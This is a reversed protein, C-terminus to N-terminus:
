SQSKKFKQVQVDQEQNKQQNQIYEEDEQKIQELILEEEQILDSSDSQLQEQIQQQNLDVNNENQDLFINENLFENKEVEIEDDEKNTKSYDVYKRKVFQVYNIMNQDFDPTIEAFSDFENEEEQFTLCKGQYKKDYQFLMKLNDQDHQQIIQKEDIVNSSLDEKLFQRQLIKEEMTGTCFLRYIYVNKTQGDRWIRGMVQLDNSPNWDVEMLIMRNAATLNLGTGGAKACLLFINYNSNQDQFQDILKQRQTSQVSGDLRLIKFHESEHQNILQQILDLTQTYYSVIIIKEKQNKLKQQDKIQYLIDKLFQTKVSNAWDNLQFDHPFYQKFEFSNKNEQDTYLIQPHNLIKRISTLLTLVATQNENFDYNQQVKSYLMKQLETMKLFIYFEYKPPLLKELIDAKRRLVFKQIINSLEKSRMKAQKIIEESADTKISAIIPDSFLSKFQKDNEFIFPNVFKICSYLENLSNQLPTGTLIIRRKCQILDFQKFTKINMNKLKHGEDFILLDCIKNFIKVHTRFQDYSILLVKQYSGAFEKCTTIVDERKGIAIKPILREDGLWKRIEKKWVGLLSVPTVIIVKNLFPKCSSFPNRRLLVWILAITQLTKGLGMSDALICGSIETGRKGTICEYM